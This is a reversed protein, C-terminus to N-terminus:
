NNKFNFHCFDYKEYTEKCFYLKNLIWIIVQCTIEIFFKSHNTLTIFTINRFNQTSFYSKLALDYLYVIENFYYKM